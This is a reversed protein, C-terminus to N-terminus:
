EGKGDMIIPFQFESTINNLKGNCIPCKNMIKGRFFIKKLGFKLRIDRQLM